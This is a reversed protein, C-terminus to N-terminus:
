LYRLSCHIEMLLSREESTKLEVSFRILFPLFFVYM